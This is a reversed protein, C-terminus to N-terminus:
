VASTAPEVVALPGKPPFSVTAILLGSQATDTIRYVVETEPKQDRNGGRDEVAVLADALSDFTGVTWTAGEGLLEVDVRFNPVMPEVTLMGAVDTLKVTALPLGTAERRLVYVGPGTMISSFGALAAKVDAATEAETGYQGLSPGDKLSITFM